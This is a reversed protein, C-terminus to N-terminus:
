SPEPRTRVRGRKSMSIGWRGSHRGKVKERAVAPERRHKSVSLLVGVAALTIALSSGGYSIFPLPIGTFPITTTVVGINIAAQFAIWSTVGTGVLVGYNDQARFAIQYGRYALAAFLGLVVLSGVLGLEEAIVAFITDTHAAPLWNFKQRSAGLGVGTIGGSGIALLSQIPHYGTAQPDKWPDLFITFRQFRYSASHILLYFAGSALVLAGFLQMLHAGAVFVISIGIVAFVIATGMDPEMMILGVVLGLIVGFPILGYTLNRVKNGKQTLWGSVYLIFVLKTLESPQIQLFSGIVIWRRAGSIVPSVQHVTVVVVLLIMAVAMAPFSIKRWIHYDVRMAILMAALGVVLWQLQRMLYYTQDHFNMYATVFSASYVMILGFILLTVVIALLWYDPSKNEKAPQDFIRNEM